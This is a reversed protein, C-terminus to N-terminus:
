IMYLTYEQNNIINSNTKFSKCEDTSNRESITTWGFQRISGVIFQEIFLFGYNQVGIVNSSYLKLHKFNNISFNPHETIGINQLWYDLVLLVGDMVNAITGAFNDKTM